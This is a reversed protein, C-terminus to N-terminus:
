ALRGTIETIRRIRSVLEEDIQGQTLRWTWNNGLTSPHNMRASEDLCLYDQLPIVCTDAVSEFAIRIFTWNRQQPTTSGDFGMYDDALKRDKDTLEGYWSVLTQNDHTGTYVVCNPTYTHPLYGSGTDRSDFAFELVKMGPFGSDRVLRIVSDTLFGLDEAIIADKKMGPVDRLAEFLKMGPGKEWHGYAATTDGAPISYYEDFGRFHDVRVVDYLKLCHAIRRKWWAYGTQEHYDWNYLPNGWLQGDASFADPPCGAVAAARHDEDFQFLEYDAWADSSDPSVYIPIDGIIKVGRSHAYEKLEQWQQMFKYQLFRFLRGEQATSKKMKEMAQPDRMRLADPWETWSIGDLSNKIGMFLAYDDLWCANERYFQRYDDEEEFRSRECAKRLIPFRMRYLKAYDVRSPDAQGFDINEVESKELLGETILADLDIFYPNGAFASFAQYPSDGYGTPGLPLIQWYSQGARQLLDIFRCASESFSGIGYRSPLSSVPLLIGATRM